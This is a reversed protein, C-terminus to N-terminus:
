MIQQSGAFVCAKFGPMYTEILDLESVNANSGHM